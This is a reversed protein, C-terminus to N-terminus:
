DFYGRKQLLIGILLFISIPFLVLSAAVLARSQTQGLNTWRHLTSAVPVTFLLAAAIYVLGLALVAIAASRRTM